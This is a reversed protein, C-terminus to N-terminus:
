AAGNIDAALEELSKKTIQIIERVDNAGVILPPCFAMADTM